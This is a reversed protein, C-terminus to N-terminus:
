LPRSQEMKLRTELAQFLAQCREEEKTGRAFFGIARKSRGNRLHIRLRPIYGRPKLEFRDVEDWRWRYTWWPTRLKVGRQELSVGAMAARGCFGANALAGIALGFGALSGLLAAVVAVYLSGLALWGFFFWAITQRWVSVYIITGDPPLISVEVDTIPGM